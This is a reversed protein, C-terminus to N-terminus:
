ASILLILMLESRVRHAHLGLVGGKRNRWLSIEVAANGCGCRLPWRALVQRSDGHQHHLLQRGGGYHLAIRPYGKAAISPTDVVFIATRPSDQPIM